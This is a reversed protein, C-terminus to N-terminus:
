SEHNLHGSVRALVIGAAVSVNLSEKTGYLPIEAVSDCKKQVSEPIGEVENGFILATPRRVMVTRYDKARPSQEVAIVFAKKGRLYRLAQTIHSVYRWAVTKEAGLSVKAFDKRPKGFRDTPAPTFGVLIIESVDFCDATRFISAVNHVSRINHLVLWLRKTKRSEQIM